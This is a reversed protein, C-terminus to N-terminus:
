QTLCGVEDGDCLVNEKKQEQHQEEAFGGGGQLTRRAAETWKTIRNRKILSWVAPFHRMITTGGKHLFRSSERSYVVHAYVSYPGILRVYAYAHQLTHIKTPITNTSLLM